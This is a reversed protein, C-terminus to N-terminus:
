LAPMVRWERLIYVDTRHVSLVDTRHVSLIKGKCVGHM